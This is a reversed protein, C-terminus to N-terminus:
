LLKYIRNGIKNNFFDIQEQYKPKLPRYRSQHPAWIIGAGYKGEMMYTLNTGNELKNFTFVIQIHEFYGERTIANVANMVDLVLSSDSQTFEEFHYQSSLAPRFQNFYRKLDDLLLKRIVAMNKNTKWSRTDNLDKINNFTYPTFTPGAPGLTRRTDTNLVNDIMRIQIIGDEMRIVISCTANDLQFSLRNYLVKALEIKFASDVFNALRHWNKIGDVKLNLVVGTDNQVLTDIEIYKDLNKAALWSHYDKSQIAVFSDPLNQAFLTSTFLFFTLLLIFHTIHKKLKM